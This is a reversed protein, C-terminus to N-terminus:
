ITAILIKTKRLLARSLCVLQKQGVSLNSGGEAIDYHLGQPLSSVFSELHSLKLAMWVDRDSHQKFPDLNFRLTGSFLVPDQPILTLKSRLSKLGMHYINRGDIKICGGAAEIIRFLALVM